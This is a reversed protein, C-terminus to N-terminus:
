PFITTPVTGAVWLQSFVHGVPLPVGFIAPTPMFELNTWTYGAPLQPGVATVFVSEALNVGPTRFATNFLVDAQVWRQAGTVENVAVRGREYWVGTTPHQWILTDRILSFLEATPLPAGAQTRVTTVDPRVTILRDLHADFDFPMIFHGYNGFTAPRLGNTTARMPLDAIGLNLTDGRGFVTRTAAPQTPVDTLTVRGETDADGTWMYFGNALRGFPGVPVAVRGPYQWNEASIQLPSGTGDWAWRLEVSSGEITTTGASDGLFVLNDFVFPMAPAGQGIWLASIVPPINWGRHEVVAIISGSDAFYDGPPTASLTFGIARNRTTVAPSRGSVNSSNAPWAGDAFSVFHYMADPAFQLTRGGALTLAPQNALITRTGGPVFVLEYHTQGVANPTAVTSNATATAGPLPPVTGPVINGRGFPASREVPGGSEPMLGFMDDLARPTAMYTWNNGAWVNRTVEIIAGITAGQANVWHQLRPIQGPVGVVPDGPMFGVPADFPLPVHDRATMQITETTGDPFTGTVTPVLRGTGPAMAVGNGTVVMVNRTSVQPTVTDVINGFTDLLVTITPSSTGPAIAARAADPTMIMARPYTTGGVTLSGTAPLSAMPVVATLPATVAEPIAMSGLEWTGTSLSFSVLVSDNLSLERLAEFYPSAAPVALSSVSGFTGTRVVSNPQTTTSLGTPARDFFKPSVTVGAPTTGTVRAIDTRIVTIAEIISTGEQVFIEVEVGNGTHASVRANLATRTLPQGARNLTNLLQTTMVGQGIAGSGGAGWGPTVWHFERFNLLNFESHPINVHFPDNVTLAQDVPFPRLEPWYNLTGQVYVPIEDEGVVGISFGSLAANVAGPAAFATFRHAAERSSLVIEVGGLTYRDAPRGFVDRELSYRLNIPSQAFVRRYITEFGLQDGIVFGLAAGQLMVPVYAQRDASWNVFRLGVPSHRTNMANYAYFLVMERTAPQHHDVDFVDNRLIRWRTGDVVSNARFHTGEYEGNVGFGVARLFMVALQAGTVYGRPSFLRNESDTGVVIGREHLYAIAGSHADLDRDNDVDRFGTMGVPLSDAVDPGLLVRAVISAAQARTIPTQPDLIGGAHGRVVGTAALVDLAILVDRHQTVDAFDTFDAAASIDGDDAAAFPVMALSLVLVLLLALTKKLKRM